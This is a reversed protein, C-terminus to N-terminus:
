HCEGTSRDFCGAELVVAANPREGFRVAVVQGSRTITSRPGAAGDLNRLLTPALAALALTAALAVAAWRRSPRWRQVRGAGAHGRGGATGPRSDEPPAAVGANIGAAIGAALGEPVGARLASRAAERFDRRAQVRCALEPDAAVEAAFAERDAPTMEDDLYAELRENWADPRM